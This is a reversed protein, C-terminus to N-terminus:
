QLESSERYPLVAGHIAWKDTRQLPYRYVCSNWFEIYMFLYYICTSSESFFCDPNGINKICTDGEEQILLCRLLHYSERLYFNRRNKGFLLYLRFKKTTDMEEKTKAEKSELSAKKM